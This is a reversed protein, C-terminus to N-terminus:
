CHDCQCLTSGTSTCCDTLERPRDSQHTYITDRFIHIGVPDCQKCPASNSWQWRRGAAPQERYKSYTINENAGTTNGDSNLDMRLKLSTLGSTNEVVGQITQSLTPDAGAHMIDLSIIDMSARLDQQTATVQLQSQGSAHQLQYTMYVAAMLLLSLVLVIMLEVLTLGKDNLIPKLYNM